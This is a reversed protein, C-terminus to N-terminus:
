LIPGIGVGAAITDLQDAKAVVPWVRRHRVVRMIGQAGIRYAQAMVHCRGTGAIRHREALLALKWRQKRGIPRAERIQQPQSVDDGAQRDFLDVLM